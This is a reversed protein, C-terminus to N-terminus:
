RPDGHLSYPGTSTKVHLHRGRWVFYKAVLHALGIQMTVAVPALLGHVVKGSLTAGRAPLTAYQTVGSPLLGSPLNGRGPEPVM